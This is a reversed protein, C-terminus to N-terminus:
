RGQAHPWVEFREVAAGYQEMDAASLERGRADAPIDLSLHWYEGGVRCVAAALHVPLTGIVRVPETTPMFHSVCEVDAFGHAAAWERAGAHRTVFLTKM